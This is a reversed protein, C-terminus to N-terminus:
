VVSSKRKTLGGPRQYTLNHPRSHLAHAVALGERFTLTREGKEIRSLKTVDMDAAEAVQAQTMGLALRRTRINSGVILDFESNVENRDEDLVPM